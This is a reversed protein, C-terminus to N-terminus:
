LIDDMDFLDYKEREIYVDKVCNDDRIKKVIRKLRIRATSINDASFEIILSTKFM